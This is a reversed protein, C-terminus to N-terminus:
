RKEGRWEQFTPHTTILREFPLMAIACAALLLMAIVAAVLLYPAYGQKVTRVARAALARHVRCLGDTGDATFACGVSRYRPRSQDAMCCMLYRLCHFRM